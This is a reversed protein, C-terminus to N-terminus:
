RGGEEPDVGPYLERHLFLRAKVWDREVTRISVDFLEAIEDKPMGAFFRLEVVKALRENREGLRELAEDLALMEDIEIEFRGKGDTLTIPAQGGGRKAAARRRAHDVLVQRMARAAVGCFHARNEVDVPQARAMKLYTEHVLETTCLTSGMGRRIQGRAVEKLTDYVLPVLREFAAGDGDRIERLLLTIEGTGTDDDTPTVMLEAAEADRTTESHMSRPPTSDRGVVFM